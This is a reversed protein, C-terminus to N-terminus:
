APGHSPLPCTLNTNQFTYPHNSSSAPRVFFESLYCQLITCGSHFLTQLTRLFNCMSNGRAYGFSNFALLVLFIQVGLPVACRKCCGFPLLFGLTWQYISIYMSHPNICLIHIYVYFPINIVGLLSIRVRAAARIFRSSM